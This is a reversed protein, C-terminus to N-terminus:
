ITMVTKNARGFGIPPHPAFQRTPAAEPDFDKLLLVASPNLSRGAIFYRTFFGRLISLKRWEYRSVKLYIFV